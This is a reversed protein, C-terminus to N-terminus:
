LFVEIDDGKISINSTAEQSLPGADEGTIPTMLDGYCYNGIIELGLAQKVRGRSRYSFGVGDRNFV